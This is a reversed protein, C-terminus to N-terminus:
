LDCNDQSLLGTVQTTNIKIECSAQFNKVIQKRRRQRM